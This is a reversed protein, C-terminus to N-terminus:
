YRGILAKFFSRWDANELVKYGRYLKYLLLLIAAAVLIGITVDLWM